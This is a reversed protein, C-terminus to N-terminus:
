AIVPDHQLRRFAYAGALGCLLCSGVNRGTLRFSATIGDWASVRRDVVFFTAFWTLFALVLGPLFCLLSGAWLHRRTTAPCSWCGLHPRGRFM